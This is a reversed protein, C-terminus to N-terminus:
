WRLRASFRSASQLAKELVVYFDGALGLALPPFAALVFATGVRDFNETNEGDEALRHYCAPTILLIMGLALLLLCGTHVAKATASLKGFADTLYAALQFGLLAQVSPLVIRAETLLSKICQKISPSSFFKRGSSSLAADAPAAVLQGARRARCPVGLADHTAPEKISNASLRSKEM